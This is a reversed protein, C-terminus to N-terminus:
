FTVMILTELKVAEMDCNSIEHMCQVPIDKHIYVVMGHHSNHLNDMHHLSFIQMQLKDNPSAQTLWTESFFVIHSSTVNQNGKMFNMKQKISLINNYLIQYRSYIFNYVPVYSLELKQQSVGGRLIEPSKCFCM